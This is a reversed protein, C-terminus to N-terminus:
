DRERDDDTPRDASRGPPTAGSRRSRAGSFDWPCHRCGTECCFGRKLHYARTFVMLGDELYFDGPELGNSGSAAARRGPSHGARPGSSDRDMM